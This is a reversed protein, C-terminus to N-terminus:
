KYNSTLPRRRQWDLIQIEFQRPDAPSVMLAVEFGGGLQAAVHMLRAEYTVLKVPSAPSSDSVAIGEVAAMLPKCVARMGDCLNRLYRCGRATEADM